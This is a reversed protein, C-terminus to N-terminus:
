GENTVSLRVLFNPGLGEVEAHIKVAKKSTASIMGKELLKLYSSDVKNKM